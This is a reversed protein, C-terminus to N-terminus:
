QTVRLQLYQEEGRKVWQGRSQVHFGMQRARAIAKEEEYTRKLAAMFAQLNPNAYSDSILTFSGDPEQHFGIDAGLGMKERTLVLECRTQLTEEGYGRISIPQEHEEFAYGLTALAQKLLNRDNIKPLEQKMHFSM